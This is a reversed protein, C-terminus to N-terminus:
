ALDDYRFYALANIQFYGAGDNGIERAQVDYFTIGNLVLNRYIAVFADAKQMATLKAGGQKAFIQANVLGVRRFRNGGPNGISAQYGDFHKVTFRVYTEGNDPIAKDVDDYIVITQGAWATNFAAVIEKTRSEYSM